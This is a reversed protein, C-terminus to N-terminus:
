HRRCQGLGQASCKCRDFPFWWPPGGDEGVNVLKRIRGARTWSTWLGVEQGDSYFGHAKTQGGPSWYSTYAGDKVFGVAPHFCPGGLTMRFHERYTAVTGDSFEQDVTRPSLCWAGIGLTVGFGIALTAGLQIVGPRMSLLSKM